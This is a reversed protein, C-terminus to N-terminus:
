DEIGDLFGKLMTKFMETAEAFLEPDSDKVPDVVKSEVWTRYAQRRQALISLANFLLALHAAKAKRVKGWVVPDLPLPCLSALDPLIGLIWDSKAEVDENGDAWLKRVAHLGAEFLANVWHEEHALLSKHATVLLISERLVRMERTEVLRGDKASASRLLLLLEDEDTSILQYGGERLDRLLQHVRQATITKRRALEHIFDVTTAVSAKGFRAAWKAHRNVFKDDIIVAEVSTTSRLLAMTPSNVRDEGNAGDDSDGGAQDAIVVVGEKLGKELAARVGEIVELVKDAHTEYAILANIEDQMSPSIFVRGKSECLAPLVNTFELYAVALDDLYINGSGILPKANVMGADVQNIYVSASEVVESNVLGERDLSALVQRTDTILAAYDGLQAEVEMWSGAKHLPGPRVVTGRDAKALVLLGAFEDGVEMVLDPPLSSPLNAVKLKADDFLKRLRKAREVRSPQHFRVRQQEKFLSTLTGSGIVIKSFSKTFNGVLGLFGLTLLCSIDVAENVGDLVKGGTRSGDFALIPARRSADVENRNGIARGLTANVFAVNLSRAALFLPAEGRRVMENIREQQQRWGPAMAAVDKISKQQLPGNENSLEVAKQFWAQVNPDSDERGREVAITYAGMYVRADANAKALAADVLEQVHGSGVERCLHALQILQLGNFRDKHERARDVLGQLNSWQGSEIEVRVWLHLTEPDLDAGFHKRLIGRASGFDGTHLLCEARRKELVRDGAGVTPM